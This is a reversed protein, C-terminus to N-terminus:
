GTRKKLISKSTGIEVTVKKQLRSSTRRERLEKQNSETAADADAAETAGDDNNKAEEAKDAAMAGANGESAKAQQKLKKLRDVNSKINFQVSKKNQRSEKQESALAAREEESDFDDDVPQRKRADKTAAKGKKGSLGVPLSSDKDNDESEAGSM